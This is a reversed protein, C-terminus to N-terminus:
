QEYSGHNQTTAQGGKFYSIQSKEIFITVVCFFQLTKKKKKNM